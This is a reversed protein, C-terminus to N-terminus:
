LAAHIFDHSSDHNAHPSRGAGRSGSGFREREPKVHM